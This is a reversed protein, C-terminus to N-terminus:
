IEVPRGLEIAQAGIAPAAPVIRPRQRVGLQIEAVDEQGATVQTGRALHEVADVSEGSIRRGAGPHAEPVRYAKVRAEALQRERLAIEVLGPAVGVLARFFRTLPQRSAPSAADAARRQASASCASPWARVIASAM